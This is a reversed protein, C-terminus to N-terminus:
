CLLVTLVFKPSKIQTVETKHQYLPFKLNETLIYIQKLLICASVVPLSYICFEKTVACEKIDVYAIALHVRHVQFRQTISKTFQHVPRYSRRSYM